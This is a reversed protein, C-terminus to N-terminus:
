DRVLAIIDNLDHLTVHPAIKLEARDEPALDELCIVHKLQPSTAAATMFQCTDILSRCTHVDSVRPILEASCFVATVEAHHAIFQLDEDSIVHHMPVAVFNSVLISM